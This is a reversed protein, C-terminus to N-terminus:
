GEGLFVDKAVKRHDWMSLTLVTVSLQGSAVSFELVQVMALHSLTTMNPLCRQKTCM